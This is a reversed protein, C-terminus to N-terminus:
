QYGRIGIYIMETTENVIYRNSGSWNFVIDSGEERSKEYTPQPITLSTLMAVEGNLEKIHIDLLSLNKM